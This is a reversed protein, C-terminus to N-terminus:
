PVQNLIANIMWNFQLHQDIRDALYNQLGYMRATGAADYTDQLHKIMVENWAQLQTFIKVPDTIEGEVDVTEIADETIMTNTQIEDLDAEPLAGLQRIKEGYTDIEGQADSYIKELFAHYQPFDPGAIDWHYQHTEIYWKFNNAFAVQLMQILKEM